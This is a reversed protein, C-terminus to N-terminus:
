NLWEDPAVKGLFRLQLIKLQKDQEMRVIGDYGDISILKGISERDEGQIVKVKDGKIPALQRLHNGQISVVKRESPVYVSCLHGQVDRIVGEKHWLSENDFTTHIKVMIETTYWDGMDSPMQYSGQASSGM